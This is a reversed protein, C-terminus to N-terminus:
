MQFIYETMVVQRTQTWTCSHVTCVHVQVERLHASGDCQASVSWAPATTGSHVGESRRGRLAAATRRRSARRDSLLQSVRRLPGTARAGSFVIIQHRFYLKLYNDETPYIKHGGDDVTFIQSRKEQRKIYEKYDSGSFTQNEYM